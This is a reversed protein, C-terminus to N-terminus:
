LEVVELLDGLGRFDVANRTILPLGNAVAVAVIMLDVARAGRAKHGTGSIAAYVRGYARAADADFPLPDFAAEVRQLRDQRRAREGASTAAHPGASLEAITIASVAVERPLLAPAISELDIVVSTDLLGRALREPARRPM